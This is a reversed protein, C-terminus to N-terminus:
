VLEYTFTLYGPARRCRPIWWSDDFRSLAERVDRSNGPWLVVAYLTQSGAEDMPARLSFMASAGFCTKLHPEAELLIDAITPHTNLFSHVSPDSFMYHKRVESLAAEDQGALGPVQGKLGGSLLGMHRAESRRPSRQFPDYLAAPVVDPWQIGTSQVQEYANM